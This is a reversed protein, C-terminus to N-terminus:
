RMLVSLIVMGVMVIDKMVLIFIIMMLNVRM